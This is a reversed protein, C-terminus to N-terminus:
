WFVASLGLVEALNNEIDPISSTLLLKTTKSVTVVDIALTADDHKIDSRANRVFIYWVPVTLAISNAHGFGGNNQCTPIPSRTRTHSFTGITRVPFLTSTFSRLTFAFAIVKWRM